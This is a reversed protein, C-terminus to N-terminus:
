KLRAGISLATARTVTLAGEPRPLTVLDPGVGAALIVAALAAWGFSRLWTVIPFHRPLAGLRHSGRAGEYALRVRLDDLRLLM